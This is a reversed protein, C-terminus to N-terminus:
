IHLINFKLANRNTLKCDFESCNEEDSGNPCDNKGDCIHTPPICFTSNRNRIVESKQEETLGSCTFFGGKCLNAPNGNPDAPDEPNQEDDVCDRTGDNVKWLPVCQSDKCAHMFSGCKSECTLTEANWEYNDACTCSKSM